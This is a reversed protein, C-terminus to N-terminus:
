QNSISSLYRCRSIFKYPVALEVSLMETETRPFKLIIEAASFRRMTCPDIGTNGTSFQKM